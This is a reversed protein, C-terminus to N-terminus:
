GHQVHSVTGDEKLHVNLRNENFDKTVMQGPEIVRCEQPLDKKCFNIENSSSDSLKKGVLKNTWQETKDSSNGTIGPIVLPM